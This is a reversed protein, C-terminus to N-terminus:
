KHKEQKEQTEIWKGDRKKLTSVVLATQKQFASYKEISEPKEKKDQYHQYIDNHFRYWHQDRSDYYIQAGDIDISAVHVGVIFRDPISLYYINNITTPNVLATKIGSPTKGYAKQYAEIYLIVPSLDKKVTDLLAEQARTAAFSSFLSVMLFSLFLSFLIQSTYFKWSKAAFGTFHRLLGIAFLLTMFLSIFLILSLIAQGIGVNEQLLLFSLYLSFLLSVALIFLSVIDKTRFPKRSEM